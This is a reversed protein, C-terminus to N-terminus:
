RYIKKTNELTDIQTKLKDLQEQVVESLEPFTIDKRLLPQTKGNKKKSPFMDKVRNISDVKYNISICM